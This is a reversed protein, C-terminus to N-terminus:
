LEHLKEHIRGLVKEKAFNQLIYERARTGLNSGHEKNEQCFIISKIIGAVNSNSEYFGLANKNILDCAESTANGTILVPRASAMMGLIKSPMVTDNVEDKQFLVHLDASCLLDNLEGYAVPSFHVVNDMHMTLEQVDARMAGDGVIIFEVTEDNIFHEAMRIFTDWDQKAGINGSYLIKFKNSELYKHTKANKPNIFSEDVWNPFYYAECSSKSKLKRIMSHSITSVLNASNFLKREIKFLLKSPYMMLGKGSFLGSEKAADFEFDQIHIWHKAEKRQALIKGLYSAITFPIISLVLDTEGVKKLNLYSGLTFDLMHIIRKSFTPSSPVYQKYRIVKVGNHDERIFRNKEKYSKQIQWHPYYPFGTIITIQHGKNSLFESLQTTYLGIATDEPYYNIGVITIKLEKM